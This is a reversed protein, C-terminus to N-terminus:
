AWGRVVLREEGRADAWSPLPRRGLAEVWAREAGSGDPHVHVVVTPANEHAVLHVMVELDTPTIRRVQAVEGHSAAAIRAAVALGRRLEPGAAPFGELLPVTPTTLRQALRGSATVAQWGRGRRACGVPPAEAASVRLTGAFDLAVDSEQVAPWCTVLDRVGALDLLVIPTGVLEALSTRAAAPLPTLPSVEVAQVRWRPVLAAAVAVLTVVIVRRPSPRRRPAPRFREPLFASARSV